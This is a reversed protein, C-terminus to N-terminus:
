KKRTWIGSLGNKRGDCDDNIPKFSLDDNIISFDYVGISNCAAGGIDRFTIQNNNLQYYGWVDIESNGFIDTQVKNDPMFTRTVTRGSVQKQWVGIISTKSKALLKISDNKFTGWGKILALEIFPAETFSATSRIKSIYLQKLLDHCMKSINGAKPHYCSVNSLIIVACKTNMDMFISSSYGDMGGNHNYWNCTNGGYKIIHWGLAIDLNDSTYTSQRQYSLITDNSFNAFVYKSLDVVNSLIAGSAKLINTQYNPIIHGLSDRGAVVMKQVKKIDSSTSNLNYKTFIKEQLLEEYTKGSKLELLYGLLGAGLNSYLYKEGPVSNLKLQRQLFDRLLASDYLTIYNDPMRPLGSTHNSLTKFTIQNCNKESPNLQYPLVNVIAEDLKIRRNCALDSLITSTFLKTISGIEFVSDKNNIYILSDQKILGTYSVQNDHIFAMSLETNVPFDYVFRIILDTQSKTLCNRISSSNQSFLCTEIGNLLILFCTILIIRKM